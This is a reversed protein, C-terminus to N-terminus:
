SFMQHIEFVGIHPGHLRMGEIHLQTNPTKKKKSFIWVQNNSLVGFCATDLTQLSM